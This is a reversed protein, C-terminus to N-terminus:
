MHINKKKKKKGKVTKHSQSLVHIIIIIIKQSTQKKLADKRIQDTLGMIYIHLIYIFLYFCDSQYSIQNFANHGTARSHLSYM